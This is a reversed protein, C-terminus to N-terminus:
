NIIIIIARRAPPRAADTALCDFFQLIDAVEKPREIPTQGAAV